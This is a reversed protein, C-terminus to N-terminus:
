KKAKAFTEKRNRSDFGSRYKGTDIKEQNKLMKYFIEIGKPIFRVCDRKVHMCVKLAPSSFYQCFESCIYMTVTHTPGFILINITRLLDETM